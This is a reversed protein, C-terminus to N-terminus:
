PLKLGHLYGDGAGQEGVGLLPFDFGGAAGEGFQESVEVALIGPQAEADDVFLVPYPRVHAEEDVALLHEIHVARQVGGM